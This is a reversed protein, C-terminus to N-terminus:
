KLHSMAQGVIDMGVEESWMELLQKTIPGPKSDSISMLNFETLPLICFSTATLFAEDANYVDYPQINTEEIPINGKKALEIVTARSIGGLTNHLTPTKIVGKTVIFFNQGDGETINGQQDLLIAYAKPNMREVERTAVNLDMRSCQKMKPDISQPSARRTWAVIARVGKKYYEAYSEFPLPKFHIAITSGKYEIGKERWRPLIGSSILQIVWGDDNPGLLPKNRQIIELSAEKLEAMSISLNIRACRLSRALREMHEDFKFLEGKFTRTFEQVSDGHVFAADLISIKAESEPLFEEDVYAVREKKGETNLASIQPVEKQIKRNDLFM